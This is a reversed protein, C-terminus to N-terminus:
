AYLADDGPAPRAPNRPDQASSALLRDRQHQSREGQASGDSSATGSSNAGQGPAGTGRDSATSNAQSTQPLSQQLPEGTRGTPRDAAVALALARQMDADRASVEVDLGNRGNDFTVTLAGFERHAVAISAPKTMDFERAVSLREVLREIGEVTTVTSAPTAAAIRAADGKAVAAAELPAAFPTAFPKASDSSALLRAPAAPSEGTASQGSREGSGTDQEISAAAVSGIGPTLAASTQPERSPQMATSIAEPATKLVPGIAAALRKEVPTSSEKVAAGAGAAEAPAVSITMRIQDAKLTQQTSGAAAGDKIPPQSTEAATAGPAVPEGRKAILATQAQQFSIITASSTMLAAAAPVPVPDAQPEGAILGSAGAALDVGDGPLIKGTPLNGAEEASPPVTAPDRGNPAPLVQILQAIMAAFGDIGPNGNSEAAEAEGSAPKAQPMDFAALFSLPAIMM